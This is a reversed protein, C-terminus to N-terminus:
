AGIRTTAERYFADSGSGVPYIGKGIGVLIEQEVLFALLDGEHICCNRRKCAFRHAHIRYPAVTNGYVSYPTNAVGTELGIVKHEPSKGLLHCHLIEYLVGTICM